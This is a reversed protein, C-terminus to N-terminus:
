NLVCVCVFFAFYVDAMSLISFCYISNRSTTLKAFEDLTQKRLALPVDCHAYTVLTSSWCRVPFIIVRSVDYYFIFWFSACTTDCTWTQVLKVTLSLPSRMLRCYRRFRRFRSSRANDGSSWMCFTANVSDVMFAMPEHFVCRWWWWWWWCWWCWRLWRLALWAAGARTFPGRDSLSCLGEWTQGAHGLHAGPLRHDQRQRSSKPLPCLGHSVQSTGM